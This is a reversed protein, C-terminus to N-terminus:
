VLEAFTEIVGDAGLEIAPTGDSYGYPVCVVKCGYNRACGVDTASDGVFLVDHKALGLTNAALLAPAAHPKPTAATEHGVLTDFIGLMGLEELLRQSLAEPKNTVVALKAGRSRLAELTTLVEPYPQSTVAINEAYYALFHQFMADLHTEDAGQDMLARQLLVRVEDLQHQLMSEAM